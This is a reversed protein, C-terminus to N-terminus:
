LAFDGMGTGANSKTLFYIIIQGASFERFHKEEVGFHDFVITLRYLDTSTVKLLLISKQRITWFYNLVGGFQQNL